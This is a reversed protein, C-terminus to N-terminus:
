ADSRFLQFCYVEIKLHITELVLHYAKPSVPDKGHLFIQIGGEMDRVTDLDLEVGAIDLTACLRISLYGLSETEYSFGNPVTAWFKFRFFEKARLTFVESPGLGDGLEIGLELLGVRPDFVIGHLDGEFDESEITVPYWIRDDYIDM